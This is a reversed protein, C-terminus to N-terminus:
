KEILFVNWLFKESVNEQNFFLFIKFNSKKKLFFRCKKWIFSICIMMTMDSLFCIIIIIILNFSTKVNIFIIKWWLWWPYNIPFIKASLFGWSHIIKTFINRIDTQTCELNLKRPKRRKKWKCILYKHLFVLMMKKLVLVCETSM